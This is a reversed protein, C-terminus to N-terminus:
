LSLQWMIINMHGTGHTPYSSGLFRTFNSVKVESGCGLTVSLICVKTTVYCWQESSIENKPYTCWPVLWYAGLAEEPRHLIKNYTLRMSVTFAVTAMAVEDNQMSLVPHPAGTKM